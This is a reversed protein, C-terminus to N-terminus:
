CPTAGKHSFEGSGSENPGDGGGPDSGSGGRGGDRCVQGASGPGSESGAPVEGEKPICNVGDCADSGCGCRSTHSGSDSDSPLDIIPGTAAPAQGDGNAGRNGVALGIWDNLDRTDISVEVSEARSTPEGALLQWKDTAIGAAVMADKAEKPDNSDLAVDVLHESALRYREAMRRKSTQLPISHALAVAEVTRPDLKLSERIVSLQVGERLLALCQDYVEPRQMRLRHGTYVGKSELVSFVEAPMEASSPLLALQTPADM